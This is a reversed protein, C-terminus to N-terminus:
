IFLNLVIGEALNSLGNGIGVVFAQGLAGSIGRLLEECGGAAAQLLIGGGLISVIRRLCEGGPRRRRGASTMSVM